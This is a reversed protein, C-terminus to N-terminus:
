GRSQLESTHEESRERSTRELLQSLEQLREPTRIAAQLDAVNSFDAAQIQRTFEQEQETFETQQEALAQGRLELQSSLQDHEREVQNLQREASQVAARLQELQQRTAAAREEPELGGTQQGILAALAARQIALSSRFLTTYPSM